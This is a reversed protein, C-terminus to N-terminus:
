YTDRITCQHAKLINNQISINLFLKMQVIIIFTWDVVMADLNCNRQYALIKKLLFKGHGL